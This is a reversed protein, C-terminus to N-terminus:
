RKNDNTMRQKLNQLYHICDDKFAKEYSDDAAAILLCCNDIAKSDEETWKPFAEVKKHIKKAKADWEWGADKMEQFLLDSQEKTAPEVKYDTWDYDTTSVIFQDHIDIGCHAGISDSIHKGNYIFPKNYESVLVDGDRADQISWKHYYKLFDVYTEIGNSFRVKIIVGNHYEFTTIQIPTRDVGNEVIWDGIKFNGEVKNSNDVKEEHIAELASKVLPKSKQKELWAICEDIEITSAHYKKQLELFHICNKRIKEDKTEKKRLIIKGDEMIAELGEPIIIEKYYPESDSAGFPIKIKKM